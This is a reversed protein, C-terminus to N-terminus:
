VTGGLEANAAFTGADLGKATVCLPCVLFRGGAAAHRAMLDPPRPCGDCAVGPRFEDVALRVAEKSLLDDDPPRVRGGCRGHAPRRHGARPGEPGTALSIAAKGTPTPTTM